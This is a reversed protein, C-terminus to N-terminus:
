KMVDALNVKFKKFLEQLEKNSYLRRENYELMAGCCETTVNPKYCYKEEEKKSMRRVRIIYPQKCKSCRYTYFYQATEKLGGYDPLGHKKLESRFQPSLDGNPIKNYALGIRVAERCGAYLLEKKNTTALLKSDIIVKPPKGNEFITKALKGEKFLNESLVEVQIPAKYYNKLWYEIQQWIYRRNELKKDEIKM